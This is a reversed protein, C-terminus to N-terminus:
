IKYLPKRRKYWKELKFGVVELKGYVPAYVCVVDKTICMNLATNVDNDNPNVGLIKALDNLKFKADFPSFGRYTENEGMDSIFTITRSNYPVDEGDKKMTGISIKYGILKTKM